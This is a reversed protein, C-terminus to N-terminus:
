AGVGPMHGLARVVVITAITFYIATCSIDNLVTVFPGASIAPDIGLRACLMPVVTGVLASAIIGCFMAAAVSAGLRLAFGENHYYVLVFCGVMLGFAVGLMAGVRIESFLVRYLRSFDVEGTALGRVMITSSQIGVNGGMANVAPLFFVISVFGALSAEFRSMVFMVVLEGTLTVVLWPLRLVVRRLAPERTPHTAGTGAIRFIDENLEENIVDIVDDVTVIGLMREDGDVVPVASFDHKAVLTAVTEQDEDVRASVVDTEMIKSIPTGVPATLLQRASVVGKLRGQEDTVYVYHFSEVDPSRRVVTLAEDATLGERVAIFRTTMIGGATDPDYHELKRLERAQEPGLSRMVAKRDDDSLLELLDAGDDPPLAEVLESIQEDRAADLITERTLPDTETVVEAAEAPPLAAMIRSTEHQEFDQLVEAIEFPHFEKIGRALVGPTGHDLDLLMRISERIQEHAESSSPNDRQDTM